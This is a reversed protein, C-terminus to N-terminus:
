SGRCLKTKMTSPAEAPSRPAVSTNPRRYLWLPAVNAFYPFQLALQAKMSKLYDERPWPPIPFDVSKRSASKRPDNEPRNWPAM